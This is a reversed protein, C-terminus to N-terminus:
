HTEGFYAEHKAAAAKLRKNPSPPNELLFFVTEADRQSLEIQREAELIQQAEKLAAQVIFQNLTAGSLVAAKELTGKIKQPIRATIRADNKAADLM